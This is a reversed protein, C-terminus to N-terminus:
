LIQRQGFVLAPMSGGHIQRSGHGLRDCQSGSCPREDGTAERDSNRIAEFTLDARPGPERRSVPDRDDVGGAGDVCIVAAFHHDGQDVEAVAGNTTSRPMRM